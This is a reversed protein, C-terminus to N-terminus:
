LISKIEERVSGELVVAWSKNLQWDEVDVNGLESLEELSANDSLPLPRLASRLPFLVDVSFNNRLPPRGFWDQFYGKDWAAMPHQIGVSAWHASPLGLAALRLKSLRESSSRRSAPELCITQALRPGGCWSAHMTRSSWLLLGGAPVPVRRAYTAWGDALEQAKARDRVWRVQTVGTSMLDDFVGLHSGPWVVTASSTENAPWVYFVSQFVTHQRLEERLDHVNQDVHASGSEHDQCSDNGPTFFSVDVGSVLPGSRPFLAQFCRHISALSRLKWSFQGHMLCRQAAFGARSTFQKATGIPFAALGDNLFQQYAERVKAPEEKLKEQDILAVLDAKFLDEIQQLEASGVLGTVVACGHDALVDPLRSEVEDFKVSILALEASTMMPLWQRTADVAVAHTRPRKRKRESSAVLETVNEHQDTDSYSSSDLSPSNGMSSCPSPHAGDDFDATPEWSQLERGRLSQSRDRIQGTSKDSESQAANYDQRASPTQSPSQLRRGEGVRLHRLRHSPDEPEVKEFTTRDLDAERWQLHAPNLLKNTLKELLEETIDSNDGHQNSSVENVHAKAVAFFLVIINRTHM